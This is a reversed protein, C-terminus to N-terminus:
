TLASCRQAGQATLLRGNTLHKVCPLAYIDTGIEWSVGSRRGGGHRYREERCRCREEQGAILNIQVM